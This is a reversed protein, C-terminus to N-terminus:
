VAAQKDTGRKKRSPSDGGGLDEAEAELLMQAVKNLHGSITEKWAETRRSDKSCATTFRLIWAADARYSVRVAVPRPM